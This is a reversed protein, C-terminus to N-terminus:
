QLSLGDQFAAACVRQVELRMQKTLQDPFLVRRYVKHYHKRCWAADKDVM